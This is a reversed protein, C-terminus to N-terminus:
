AATDSLLLWSSSRVAFGHVTSTACAVGLRSIGLCVRPLLAAAHREFYCCPNRSEGSVYIGVSM